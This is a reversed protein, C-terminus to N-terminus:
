KGGGGSLSAVLLRLSPHFPWSADIIQKKATNVDAHLLVM